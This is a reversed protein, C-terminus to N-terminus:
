DDKRKRAALAVSGASVLGAALPLSLLAGDGTQPLAARAPKASACRYYAPVGDAKLDVSQGDNDDTDVYFAAAGDVMGKKVKGNKERLLTIGTESWVRYQDLKDDKYKADPEAVKLDSHDITMQGASYVGGTIDIVSERILMTGEAGVFTYENGDGQGIKSTDITVNGDFSGVLAYEGEVNVTVHNITMDGESTILGCQEKDEGLNIVDRMQCDTGRVTVSARDMGVISEFDNEGTVNVTVQADDYAAVEEFDNHGDANITVRSQGAALIDEVENEGTFGLDVNASGGVTVAEIDNGGNFRVSLDEDTFLMGAEVDTLALSADTFVAKGGGIETEGQALETDDITVVALALQPFAMSCGLAATLALAGARKAVLSIGKRKGGM